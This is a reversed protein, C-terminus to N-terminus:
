QKQIMKNLYISKLCKGNEGCMNQFQRATSCYSYEDKEIGNILYNIKNEIQPFMKCKGFPFINPKTDKVFHKCNICKLIIFICYYFFYNNIKYISLVLKYKFIIQM